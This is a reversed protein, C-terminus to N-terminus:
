IVAIILASMSIFSNQLASPTSQRPLVSLETYSPLVNLLTPGFWTSSNLNQATVFADKALHQMVGWFQTLTGEMWVCVLHIIAKWALWVTFATWRLLLPNYKLAHGQEQTYVRLLTGELVASQRVCRGKGNTLWIWTCKKKKTIIPMKKSPLFM